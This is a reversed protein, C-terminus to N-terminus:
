SGEEDDLTTANVTAVSPRATLLGRTRAVAVLDGNAGVALKRRLKMLGDRVTSRQVGLMAALDAGSAGPMTALAMLLREQSPTLAVAADLIASDDAHTPPPTVAAPTAESTLAVLSLDPLASEATTIPLHGIGGCVTRPTEDDPLGDETDPVPLPTARRLSM